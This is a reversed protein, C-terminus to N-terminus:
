PYVTIPVGNSWAGSYLNRVSITWSGPALRNALNVNIQLNSKYYLGVADSDSFTVTTGGQTCRIENWQAENAFGQGWLIIYGGAQINNGYSADTVANLIPAVGITV